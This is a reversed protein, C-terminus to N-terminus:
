VWRRPAVAARDGGPRFDRAAIRPGTARRRPAPDTKALFFSQRIRRTAM